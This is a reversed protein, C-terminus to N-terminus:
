YYTPKNYEKLCVPMFALLSGKNFSPSGNKAISTVGSPIVLDIIETNEDSYVHKAYYLPNSNSAYFTIGCWAAIDKVIVKKLGSNNIYNYCITKGDTNQVEIDHACVNAGFMSMLVTLLSSLIVNRM